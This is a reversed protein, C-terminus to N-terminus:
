SHDSHDTQSVRGEPTNKDAKPHGLLDICHLQYLICPLYSNAEIKVEKEKKKNIIKWPADTVVSLFLMPDKISWKLAPHTLPPVYNIGM